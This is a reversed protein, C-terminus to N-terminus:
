IATTIAETLGSLIGADFDGLSNAVKSGVKLLGPPLGIKVLPICIM